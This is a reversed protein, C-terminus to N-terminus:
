NIILSEAINELIEVKLDKRNTDTKLQLWGESKQVDSPSRRILSMCAERLESANHTDALLLTEVVNQATMSQELVKECIQRLGVLGYEEATPLLRFALTESSSAEVKGTYMFCLMAELIDPSTDNMEIKNDEREWQKEFRAKFFPSQSALVARHAKFEHGNTALVVDTYLGLKRSEQLTKGLDFSEISRQITKQSNSVTQNVVPCDFRYLELKCYISVTDNVLANAVFFTDFVAFDPVEVPTNHKFNAVATGARRAPFQITRYSVNEPESTPGDLNSGETVVQPKMIHLKAAAWVGYDDGHKPQNPQVKFRDYHAQVNVFINMVLELSLKNNISAEIPSPLLRMSWQTRNDPYPFGEPGAFTPSQLIIPAQLRASAHKITWQFDFTTTLFGTNGHVPSVQSIFKAM